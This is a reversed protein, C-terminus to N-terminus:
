GPTGISRWYDNLQGQVQIFWVIPGAIPLLVWLGHWVGVRSQQGARAMMKRVEYPVLFFTVPSIVLYIVFGLPGGVGDGSHRKTEDQTLWVWVYTYIWLTVIALLICMGINRVKGPPGLAPRADGSPPAMEPNALSSTAESPEPVSGAGPPESAASPEPTVPPSPPTSTADQEPQDTM